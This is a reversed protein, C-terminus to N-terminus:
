IKPGNFKNSNDLIQEESDQNIIKRTPFNYDYFMKNQAIISEMDFDKVGIENYMNNLGNRFQEININSNVKSVIHEGIELLIDQIENKSYTYNSKLVVPYKVILDMYFKDDLEEFFNVLGNIINVGDLYDKGMIKNKTHDIIFNIKQYFEEISHVFLLETIGSTNLYNYRRALLVEDFSMFAHNYIDKDLQNDWTPDAIFYGDINYYKDVLHIFRRNHSSRNAEINEPVFEANGSVFDYGTEVGLGYEISEIGLKTLLDGLLNSFGVCVMYDSDLIDYLHRAEDTNDRNEKYKKFKKVVNYAFLYKEFPRLNLAPEILTYLRREYEVFKQVSVVENDPTIIDVKFNQFLSTNTLYLQYLEDKKRTKSLDFKYSFDKNLKQSEKMVELYFNFNNGKFTIEVNSSATIYKLNELLFIDTINFKNMKRLHTYNYNGILNRNDYFYLRDDIVDIVNEGLQYVRINELNNSCKLIEYDERTLYYPNHYNGLTISKITPNNVVAKLISESILDKDLSLNPYQYNEIISIIFSNFEELNNKRYNPDIILNHADLFNDITFPHVEDTLIYKRDNLIMVPDLSIRTITGNNLNNFIFDKTVFKAWAINPSDKLYIDAM